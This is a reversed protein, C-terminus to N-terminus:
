SVILALRSPHFLYSVEKHCGIGHLMVVTLGNSRQQPLKPTYRNAVTWLVERRSPRTDEGKEQSEKRESLRAVTKQIREKQQEKTEVHPPAIWLDSPCRPYAAPFVHTSVVWDQLFTPSRSSPIIPYDRLRVPPPELPALRRPHVSRHPLTEAASPQRLSDYSPFKNDMIRVLQTSLPPAALLPLFNVM